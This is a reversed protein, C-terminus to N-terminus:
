FVSKSVENSPLSENGASDVATIRFYYTTGITLGTVPYSVTGAPVTAIPTGYVGQTTSRYVRYSALDTETNPNWTLTASSTSAANLNLTVGVTRTTGGGTLTITANNVGVTATSTNVSVTISGNNSGSTPSVTLWSSNESVSWSTNSTVSLPQNVPNAAGQTATFTLSTPSVSLTAPAAALSFTVSVTRTLGGGTVTITGTNTGVAATAQDVTVTLTGNNSGSAPSVALWSVTETVSWSVNSTISLSQAAPNAGGQTATFSLSSSGVTLTSAAASVTFSVPILQPTNTAGTGAVTISTTYTGASLGTVNATVALSGPGTGSAPSVSLWAVASSANWSLTGTGTNGINVTQASPNAGGQTASFTLSSPTLGITPVLAATVTLTVMVTQPTNTADSAAITLPATYTGASMGSTNIALSVSGAGAGSLVSPTLWAASESVSWNLTGTGTNSISLTQASPNSGGQVGTFSLNTASLGIAPIPAAAISLTVPISQPTNTAGSAALTV